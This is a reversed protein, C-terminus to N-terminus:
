DEGNEGPENSRSKKRDRLFGIGLPLWVVVILPVIVIFFPVLPVKFAIIMVTSVGSGFATGAVLTTWFGESGQLPRDHRGPINVLFTLGYVSVIAAVGFIFITLAFASVVQADDSRQMIALVILTAAGSLTTMHQLFTIRLKIVELNRQERDDSM